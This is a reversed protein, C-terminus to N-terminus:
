INRGELTNKERKLKFKMIFDTFIGKEYENMVFKRVVLIFIISYIIVFGFFSVWSNVTSKSMLLKFVTAMIFIPVTMNLINKWFLSIDINVKKYYYWNMIIVPGIIYAICTAIACGIVGMSKVLILSLILNLIAIIFFILSRFKHMNKAQLISIGVNQILPILVPIMTLLGIIYADIYEKGVWLVIFEKGFVIFGSMIFVLVIYQVRGIKIFLDTLQKDTANESVMINIKPFIVGSIATSFSTLYTNFNAGVTYVSVAVTGAYMGLIFKDTAWYLMNVIEAIFIYISFNFIEKLIKYESNKFRPKINLIKHCYIINSIGMLINVFISSIVLGVSGNNCFLLVLNIVPAIITAILGLAKSFIYKQHAIIISSYVSLPFSIAMNITMLFILSKIKLIEEINLSKNFIANSNITLITGLIFVIIALISYIKLFLGIIREEEFKNNESIYKTIYKIIASGLGLNLLTMYGVVSTALSYLGYENAGLIKLMIPTYVLPIINGIILTFYSIIVGLRLQNIKM